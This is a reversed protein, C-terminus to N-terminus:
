LGHTSLTWAPAKLSRQELEAALDHWRGIMKVDLGLDAADDEPTMQAFAAFADMKKDPYLEWSVMVLM